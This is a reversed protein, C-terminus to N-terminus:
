DYSWVFGLYVTRPAGVFYRPEVVAGATVDAREAYHTDTLNMVRTYVHLRESLTYSARLHLLDHGPYQWDAEPDLYYRDNHLWQLAFEMRPNRWGLELAGQLRPASDIIRGKVRNSRDFVDSRYRHEGYSLAASGFWGDAAEFRWALETGQHATSASSEFVNQANRIIVRDKDLQYLAMQGHWALARWQGSARVGLEWQQARVSDIADFQQSGQLRYLETSQPPRGGESVALYWERQQSDRYQVGLRPAMLSFSDSGDVPRWYRGLAGDATRNDYRYRLWDARVGLQLLWQPTMQWDAALWLGGAKSRVRYDYHTGQPSAPTGPATQWEQLYSGARELQTGLVWRWDGVRWRQEAQVGVSHQGNREQSPPFLFHQSFNMSSQRWYPTIHTESDEAMRRFRASYRTATLDRFADEASNDRRRGAQRYSDEGVLYASSEQHLVIHTLYHQLQWEGLPQQWKGSFKYQEFGAHDIYGGDHAATLALAGREGSHRWQLRRYDDPGFELALQRQGDLPLSSLDLVGHVASAGYLAAAASGSLVNWGAAQEHHLEVLANANCFGLPRIPLGDEAVLVEGCGGPGTWLPGRLGFLHEQGGGKTIYVGPASALVEAPHVARTRTITESDIRWGHELLQEARVTVDVTPLEVVDDAIAASAVSLLAALLAHRYM